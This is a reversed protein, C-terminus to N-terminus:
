LVAIDYNVFMMHIATGARSEASEALVIGREPDLEKTFMLGLLRSWFTDCYKVRIGPATSQEKRITVTNL